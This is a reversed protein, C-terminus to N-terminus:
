KRTNEPEYYIESIFRKGSSKQWQVIVDIKNLMFKELTKDDFERGTESKKIMIKLREFADLPSSAHM